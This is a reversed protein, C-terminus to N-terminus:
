GPTVTLLTVTESGVPIIQGTNGALVATWVDAEPPLVHSRILWIRGSTGALQDAEALARSISDYDRGAAVVIGTAPPYTIYWGTPQSGGHVFQPRDATWYYGFGFGGPTNVLIVDGPRRHSRVYEVQGRLDESGSLYPYRLWQHNVAVYGGAALLGILAVAAFAHDPVLRRGAALVLWVLGLWGTAALTVLLFHSTRQDLLPYIRAVGAVIAGIPMLVVATATAPHGLRVLAVVGLAAFSLVAPWPLGLVPSLQDLRTLLYGPLDALTPFYGAGSWFAEVLSSRAAQEVGFLMALVVVGTAAGFGLLELLHRWQRRGAAVIMLGGIAAAGALAVPHSFLLGGVITASLLLMRRRSGEGSEVWLLVALVALVLCADATYPKLDHRLQQAPLTLVGLGVIVGAFVGWRRDLERRLALRGYAYGTAVSGALFVLPILRQLQGGAPVLWVLSAWGIPSVAAVWPLDPLPARDSVAVWAEDVWFPQRLIAAVDHVVPVLALLAVVAILDPRRLLRGLRSAM